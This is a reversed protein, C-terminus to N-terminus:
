VPASNKNTDTLLSTLPQHFQPPQKLLNSPPQYEKMHKILINVAGHRSHSQEYM